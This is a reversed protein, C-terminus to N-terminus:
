ADEEMASKDKTATGNATKADDNEMVRPTSCAARYPFMGASVTKTAHTEILTTKILEQIERHCLDGSRYFIQLLDARALNGSPKKTSCDFYLFPKIAEEDVDYEYKTLKLPPLPKDLDEDAEATTEEAEKKERKERELQERELREAEKLGALEAELKARAEDAAKKEVDRKQKKASREKLQAEREHILELNRKTTKEREENFATAKTKYEDMWDIIKLGNDLRLLEDFSLAFLKTEFVASVATGEKPVQNLDLLTQLSLFAPKSLEQKIVKTEKVEKVVSKTEKAPARKEMEKLTVETKELREFRAIEKEGPREKQASARQRAITDQWEKLVKEKEEETMPEEVTEKRVVEQEVEKIIRGLKLPLDKHSWVDPVLVVTKTEPGEEPKYTLDLFRHFTCKSLDLGFIEKLLRVAAKKLTTDSEFDKGDKTPEWPGGPLMAPGAAKHLVFQLQNSVHTDVNLLKGSLLAIRVIRHKDGTVEPLEDMVRDKVEDMVLTEKLEHLPVLDRWESKAGHYKVLTVDPALKLAPFRWILDGVPRTSEAWSAQTLKQDIWGASRDKVKEKNAKKTASGLIAALVASTAASLAGKAGSQTIGAAALTAAHKAAANQLAKAAIAARQAQLSGPQPLGAPKATLALPRPAPKAITLMRPAVGVAGRM